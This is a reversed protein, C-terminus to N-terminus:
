LQVTAPFAEVESPPPMYPPAAVLQMTYSLTALLPEALELQTLVTNPQLQVAGSGPPATWVRAYLDAPLALVDPIGALEREWAISLEYPIEQAGVMAHDAYTAFDGELHEGIWGRFEARLEGHAETM